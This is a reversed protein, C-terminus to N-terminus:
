AACGTASPTEEVEERHNHRKCTPGQIRGKTLDGALSMSVALSVRAKRERGHPLNEALGM